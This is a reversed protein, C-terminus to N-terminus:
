IASFHLKTPVGRVRVAGCYRSFRRFSLNLLDVEFM